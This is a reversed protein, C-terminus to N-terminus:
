THNLAVKLKGNLLSEALLGSAIVHKITVYVRCSDCASHGDGATSM